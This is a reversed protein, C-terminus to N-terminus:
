ASGWDGETSRHGMQLVEPDLTRLCARARLQRLLRAAVPHPVDVPFLPGPLGGLDPLFPRAWGPQGRNPTPGFFGTLLVLAPLLLALIQEVLWIVNGSRYYALAKESPPPVEVLGSDAPADVSRTNPASVAQDDPFAAHVIRPLLLSALTTFGLLVGTM